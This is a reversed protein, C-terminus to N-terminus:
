RARGRQWRLRAHMARDWRDSARAMFGLRVGRRHRARDYVEFYPECVQSWTRQGLVANRAARLRDPDPHRAHELTRAMRAADHPDCSWTFPLGEPSVVACGAGAAELAEPFRDPGLRSSAFVVGPTSLSEFFATMGPPRHELQVPARTVFGTGTSHRPLSLRIARPRDLRELARGLVTLGPEPGLAGAVVWRDGDFAELQEPPAAGWALCDVRDASLGRNMCAMRLSESVTVLQDFPRMASTFARQRPDVDWVIPVSAQRAAVFAAGAWRTGGFAHLLDAGERQILRRLQSRVRNLTGLPPSGEDLDRAWTRTSFAVGGPEVSLEDLRDARGRAEILDLGLGRLARAVCRARWASSLLCREGDGEAAVLVRM